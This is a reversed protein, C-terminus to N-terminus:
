SMGTGRMQRGVRRIARQSTDSADKSLARIIWGNTSAGHQQALEEIKEKLDEPLRLAIRATLEGPPTSVDDDRVSRRLSIEDGAVQVELDQRGSASNHEAVVVDLCELLRTRLAPGAAEIMRTAFEAFQDGGLSSLGELDAKVGELYHSILM